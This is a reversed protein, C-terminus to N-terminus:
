QITDVTYYRVTDMSYGRNHGSYLKFSCSEKPEEGILVFLYRFPNTIKM